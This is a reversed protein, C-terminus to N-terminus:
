GIANGAVSWLRRNIAAPSPEMKASDTSVMASINLPSSPLALPLPALSDCLCPPHPRSLSVPKLFLLTRWM